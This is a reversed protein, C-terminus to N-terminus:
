EDNEQYDQMGETISMFIYLSYSFHLETTLLTIFLRDEDFYAEKLNQNIFWFIYRIVNKTNKTIEEYEEAYEDPISDLNDELFLREFVIPALNMTVFAEQTVKERLKLLKNRIQQQSKFKKRKSNVENLVGEKIMFILEIFRIMESSIAEDYFKQFKKKLKTGKFLQQLIQYTKEYTFVNDASQDIVFKHKKNDVAIEIEMKGDTNNIKLFDILKDTNNEEKLEQGNIKIRITYRNIGLKNFIKKLDRLFFESRYKIIGNANESLYRLMNPSNGILEMIDM